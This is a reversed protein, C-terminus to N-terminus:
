YDPIFPDFVGCSSSYTYIGEAPAFLWYGAGPNMYNDKQLYKWQDPNDPEWYTVLSTWGKDWLDEGLSYLACYAVKGNGNLEPGNYEFDVEDLEDNTAYHGILNWGAIIEKDPPTKGPSFLSGGIVLETDNNALVWYGWGPQM